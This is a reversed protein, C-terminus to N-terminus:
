LSEQAYNAKIQVDTTYGKQMHAPFLGQISQRKSTIHPHENILFLHRGRPKKCEWNSTRPLPFHWPGWPMQGSCRETPMPFIGHPGHCKGSCWRQFSEKWSRPVLYKPWYPPPYILVYSSVPFTFFCLSSTTMIWWECLFSEIILYSSFHCIWRPSKNTVDEWCFWNTGRFRLIIGRDTRDTQYYCKPRYM